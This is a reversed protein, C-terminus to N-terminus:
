GAGATRSEGKEGNLIRVLKLGVRESNGGHGGGLLTDALGHEGHRPEARAEQRRGFGDRLFHKGDDISRDNLVHDVLRTGGPDLMKHEHGPAVLRRDFLVEVM